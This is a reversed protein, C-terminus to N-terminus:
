GDLMYILLEKTDTHDTKAVLRALALLPDEVPDDSGARPLDDRRDIWVRILAKALDRSKLPGVRHQMLACRCVDATALAISEDAMLSALSLRGRAGQPKVLPVNALMSLFLALPVWNQRVDGTGDTGGEAAGHAWGALHTILRPLDLLSSDTNDSQSKILKQLASRMEELVDLHRDPDPSTNVREAVAKLSALALEPRRTGAFGCALRIALVMQDSNGASIWTEVTRRLAESTPRDFAAVSVAIDATLRAGDSPSVLWPLLAGNFVDIFHRQALLGLSFGLRMRQEEPAQDAIVKLWDIIDARHRGFEDWAFQLIAPAREEDEFRVVVQNTGLIPHVEDARACQLERLQTSTRTPVPEGKPPDSPPIQALLRQSLARGSKEIETLPAGEFMAAALALSLLEMRGQPDFRSEIGAFWAEVRAAPSKFVDGAELPAVTEGKLLRVLRDFRSDGVIARFSTFAHSQVTHIAARFLFGKPGPGVIVPILKNQSRAIDLEIAIYDRPSNEAKQTVFALVRRARSLAQEVQAPWYGEVLDVSWWVRVGRRRLEAVIPEIDARDGSSFSVFVDVDEGSHGNMQGPSAAGPGNM